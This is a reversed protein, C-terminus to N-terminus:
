GLSVSVVEEGVFVYLVKYLQDPALVMESDSVLHEEGKSSVKDASEYEKREKQTIHLLAAESKVQSM